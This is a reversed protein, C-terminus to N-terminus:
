TPETTERLLRFLRRAAGKDGNRAARSLKPLDTAVLDPYRDMLETLTADALAPDCLRDRWEELEHFRRQEAWHSESERNLHEAIVQQLDEDRRLLGALHRVARQRPADGRASRVEDLAGAIEVPLQLTQLLSAPQAALLGAMQEVQKAARKRASRGRGEDRERM